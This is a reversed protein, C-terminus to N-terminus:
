INNWLKSYLGSVSQWSYLELDQTVSGGKFPSLQWYDRKLPNDWGVMLKCDYSLAELATLYGSAFVISAKKYYKGPDCFGHVIGYKGCESRLTGDGCFEVKYKPNKNLFNFLKIIGTDKELRGVFVISNKEKKTKSKILNTGGYTVYDAKIGYWKEIYHGVAISGNVLKNAIRKFIINKIPIPYKGEWGHFTIFVKKNPFIFRFPLYWIFVDHIHVIDSRQILKINKLFWFWIYLIGIFKIKPYKIDKESIIKLRFGKSTLIKSTERIHKEVGGVEPWVRRSLILVNM